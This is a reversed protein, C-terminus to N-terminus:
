ETKKAPLLNRLSGKDTSTHATAALGIAGAVLKQTREAFQEATESAGRQQKPLVHADVAVWPQFAVLFMHFSYYPKVSHFPVFPIAPYYRLGVPFVPRDLSFIFASFRLLGVLGNTTAGEPFIVVPTPESEISHLIQDKVQNKDGGVKIKHRTIIDFSGVGAKQVVKANNPYLFYLVGPDGTMTHNSVIFSNALEKETPKKGVVKRIYVGSIICILHFLSCFFFL